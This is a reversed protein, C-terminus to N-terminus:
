RLSSSRWAVRWTTARGSGWGSGAPEVNRSKWRPLRTSRYSRSSNSVAKLNSIPEGHDDGSRMALGPYVTPNQVNSARSINAKKGTNFQAITTWIVQREKRSHVGRREKGAGGGCLLSLGKEHTLASQSNRRFAEEKIPRDLPASHYKRHVEGRKPRQLQLFDENVWM